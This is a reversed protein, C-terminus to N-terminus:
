PQSTSRVGGLPASVPSGRLAVQDESQLPPHLLCEKDADGEWWWRGAREHEGAETARTCPACGISTYGRDYLPHHDIDRAALYTGSRTM